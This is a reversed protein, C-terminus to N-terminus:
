IKKWDRLHYRTKYMGVNFHGNYLVIDLATPLESFLKDWEDKQEQSYTPFEDVELPNPYKPPGNLILDIAEYFNSENFLLPEDIDEVSVIFKNDKSTSWRLQRLLKIHENKLEFKVISM